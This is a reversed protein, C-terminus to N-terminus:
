LRCVAAGRRRGDGAGRRHLTVVVMATELDPLKRQKKLAPIGETAAKGGRGARGLRLHYLDERRLSRKVKDGLKAQLEQRVM